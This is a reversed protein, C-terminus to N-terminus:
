ARIDQRNAEHLGPLYRVEHSGRDGIKRLAPQEKALRALGRRTGIWVAGDHGGLAAYTSADPLGDAVGFTEFREGDFRSVGDQTAFWLFGRRDRGIGLVRANALGEASGYRRIPQQEARAIGALAMVIALAGLFSRAGAM